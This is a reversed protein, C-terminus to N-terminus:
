VEYQGVEVFHRLAERTGEELVAIAAARLAESSGPDALVTFVAVRDDVEQADWRGTELFHRLAEATGAELAEAAAEYVSRGTDTDALVRFVEMRLDTLSMSDYPSERGSPVSAAVTIAPSSPAAAAFSPTAFLLASALSGATVTMALANYAPRM